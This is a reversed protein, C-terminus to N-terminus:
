DTKRRLPHQLTGTGGRNGFPFLLQHREEGTVQTDIPSWHHRRREKRVGSESTRAPAAMLLLGLFAALALAHKPTPPSHRLLHRLENALGPTRPHNTQKTASM